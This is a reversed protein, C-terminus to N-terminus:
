GVNEITPTFMGELVPSNPFAVVVKVESHGNINMIVVFASCLNLLERVKLSIEFFNGLFVSQYGSDDKIVNM